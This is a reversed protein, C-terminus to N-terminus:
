SGRSRLIRKKKNTVRTAITVTGSGVVARTEVHRGPEARRHGARVADDAGEV